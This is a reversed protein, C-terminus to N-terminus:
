DVESRRLGDAPAQRRPMREFEFLRRLLYARALSVLTFPLGLALNAFLGRDVGFLPLAVMQTAVALLYGVLTNTAAEVLSLSRSQSM